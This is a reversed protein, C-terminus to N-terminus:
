CDSPRFRNRGEPASASSELPGPAARSFGRGKSSGNKFCAQCVVLFMTLLVQKLAPPHSIAMLKEEQAIARNLLLYISLRGYNLTARSLRSQENM